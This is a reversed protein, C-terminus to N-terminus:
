IWDFEHFTHPPPPNHWTKKTPQCTEHVTELTPVAHTHTHPSHSATPFVRRVLLPGTFVAVSVSAMLFWEFTKHWKTVKRVRGARAFGVNRSRNNMKPLQSPNDIFDSMESSYLPFLPSEAFAGFMLVPFESGLVFCFFSDHLQSPYFAILRQCLRQCAVRSSLVGRRGLVLAGPVTDFRQGWIRQLINHPVFLGPSWLSKYWAHWTGGTSGSNMWRKCVICPRIEWENGRCPFSFHQSPWSVGCSACLSHSLIWGSVLWLVLCKLRSLMFLINLVQGSYMQCSPYTISQFWPSQNREYQQLELPITALSDIALCYNLFWWFLMYLDLGIM